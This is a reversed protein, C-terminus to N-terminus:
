YAVKRVDAPGYAQDVIYYDRRRPLGTIPSLDVDMLAGTAKGRLAIIRHPVAVYGWPACDLGVIEGITRDPDFGCDTLTVVPRPQSYFDWYLRCLRLAYARSQVLPMDELTKDRAYPRGSAATYTVTSQEAAMLPQGTAKLEFLEILSGTVNALLVTIRQALVSVVTITLQATTATRANNPFAAVHTVTGLSVFPLSTDLDLTITEGAEILRPTKDAYIEQVGQVQRIVFPCIVTDVAPGIDADESIDAYNGVNLAVREGLNTKNDTYIFTPDADALSFPEIYRMVGQTDQYVVGGTARCCRYIAEMANEGHTWSFPPSMLAPQLSYYFVAEPYTAEQEYPRGGAQWFIYNILGGTYFVSAPDDISSATTEVAVPRNRFLPSRIETKSILVNWGEAQWVGSTYGRGRRTLLGIFRRIDSSAGFGHSIRVPRYEWAIDFAAQDIAISLSPQIGVGFGVADGGQTAEIVDEISVIDASVNVWAAGDHIEVRSFPLAVDAEIEARTPPAM